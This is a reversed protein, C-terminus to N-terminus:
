DNSIRQFRIRSVILHQEIDPNMTSYPTGDSQLWYEASDCTEIFDTILEQLAGIRKKDAVKRGDEIIIDPVYLNFIVTGRQIQEDTGALFKVILDEDSADTPRMESRYVTGRIEAGLRSDKVLHYFDREIQMETKKM